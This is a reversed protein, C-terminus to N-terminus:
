DAYMVFVKFALLCLDPSAQQICFNLSVIDGSSKVPPLASATILGM